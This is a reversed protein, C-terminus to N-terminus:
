EYFKLKNIEKKPIPKECKCFESLKNPFVGMIGIMKGCKECRYQIANYYVPKKEKFGSIFTEHIGTDKLLKFTKKM